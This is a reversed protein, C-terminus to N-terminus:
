RLLRGKISSFASKPHTLFYKIRILVQYFPERIKLYSLLEAIYYKCHEIALDIVICNQYYLLKTNNGWMLGFWRRPVIVKKNPNGNLWAGWWGFTSTSIINHDCLTMMCLDVYQNNGEIYVLSNEEISNIRLNEKCWAIDDSFVIFKVNEDKFFSMAKLYYNIKSIKIADQTFINKDRTVYDGRRVHISVLEQGERLKRIKEKAIIEIEQRFRFEKIIKEKCAEFYKYSQFFGSIDTNDEISFLSSDFSNPKETFLSFSHVIKQNNIASLNFANSLESANFDIQFEYNLKDSVAVLAAYQFMQNGLRGLKGLKTFYIMKSVM